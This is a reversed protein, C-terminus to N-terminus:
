KGNRYDKISAFVLHKFYRTHADQKNCNTLSPFHLVLFYQHLSGELVMSALSNAYPYTPAVGVIMEALRSALRKYIEFYGEKNEKDVEKTLFSKSYENIVIQHLAVEDIHSFAADTEVPRTLVELAEELRRDAEAISNTHIVLQYELWGWYWSTLYILFKHKNEFYRYVSSENSGILDGLKRFTFKEFGKEAILEIGHQVMRKGLDSSEPDKQYIKPNVAIQLNYILRQM